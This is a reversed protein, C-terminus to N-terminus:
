FGIIRSTISLHLSPVKAITWTDGEARIMVTDTVQCSTSLSLVKLLCSGNTQHNLQVYALNGNSTVDKVCYGPFESVAMSETDPHSWIQM